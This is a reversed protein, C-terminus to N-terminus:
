ASRKAKTVTSAQQLFSQASEEALLDITEYIRTMDSVLYNLAIESLHEQVFMGLVKHLARAERLLMRISYGQKARAEGHQAAAGRTDANIDSGKAVAVAQDLLEPAYDRAPLEPLKSAALNLDTSVEALWAKVLRDRHQEVLDALRRPATRPAPRKKHLKDEIAQAIQSADVPKVFYDDVEQRIAELATEFAPYGTLIFTAAEPHTSRMASVITFGDGQRDINLDAILIDFPQNAILQIADRTNAASTVKFGFSELVLPLTARIAEEDDVFLIEPKTKTSL